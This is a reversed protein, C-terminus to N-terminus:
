SPSVVIRSATMTAAARVAMPRALFPLRLSVRGSAKAECISWPRTSRTSPSSLASTSSMTRPQAMGSPSCPMFTARRIENAAPKGTSTGAMVTLRKQQEPEWVMAMAESEIRAPFPSMTIAPPTSDMDMTAMPPLLGM